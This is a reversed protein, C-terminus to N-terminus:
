TVLGQSELSSRPTSVWATSRNASSRSFRRRLLLERGVDAHEGLLRVAREVEAGDDALRRRQAVHQRPDLLHRLGRRRHEQAALGAGALLHHGAGDVDVARALRPGEHPDVARRQRRAHELGLQEAVLLPGEGPAIARRSPRNSSASPPVSNRSSTPSRGSSTWTLSSRTRCSRSNSRTPPVSVTLTSTRTTEAVWRSRSRCIARRSAEALVEVVSQVDERDTSGGSRSRAAAVDREQGLVEHLLVGGAGALRHAPEVGAATAASQRAVGPRAVDALELVDDLPREDQRTAGLDGAGVQLEGAPAGGARHRRPAAPGRRHARRAPARGGGASRSCSCSRAAM